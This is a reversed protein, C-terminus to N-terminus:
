FDPEDDVPKAAPTEPAKAKPKETKVGPADTERAKRVTWLVYGKGRPKGHNAIFLQTGPEPKLKLFANRATTNLLDFDVEAGNEDIVKVSPVTIEDKQNPFHGAEFTKDEVDLFEIM